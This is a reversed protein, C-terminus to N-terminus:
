RDIGPVPFATALEAIEARVAGRVSENEIEDLVRGIWVAIREMEGPGM